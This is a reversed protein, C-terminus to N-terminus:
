MFTENPSLALATQVYTNYTAVPVNACIKSNHCSVLGHFHVESGELM